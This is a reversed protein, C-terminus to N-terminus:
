RYFRLWNEVLQADTMFYARTTYWDSEADTSFRVLGIVDLPVEGALEQELTHVWFIQATNDNRKVRYM